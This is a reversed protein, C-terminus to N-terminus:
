RRSWRPAPRRRGVNRFFFFVTLAGFLFGGIHAFFAVGGGVEAENVVSFVGAFLNQLFWMGILLFAPIPIPIFILIFVPIVVNVIARPYFVIYAGLVAAVAGSAGVVPVASSTDIAIQTLAAVIGGALYFLAFGLHGFRDEVNDGFVWLFLMNGIIHLWGAHMFMSVVITAWIETRSRVPFQLDDRANDVFEEPQLSWRCYFNERPTPPVRLGYCDQETQAVFDAQAEARSAPLQDSLTIVYLWMGVNIIIFLYTVWPTRWTRPSDGVPIM